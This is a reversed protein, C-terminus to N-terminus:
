YFGIEFGFRTWFLLKGNASTHIVPYKEILCVHYHFLNIFIQLFFQKLILCFMIWFTVVFKLFEQLGNFLNFKDFNKIFMEILNLMSKGFYLLPIIPTNVSSGLILYTHISFSSM